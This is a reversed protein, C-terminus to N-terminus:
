NAVAELSLVEGKTCEVCVEFPHCCVVCDATFRQRSISTEVAVETLEGCFPCPVQEIQEM